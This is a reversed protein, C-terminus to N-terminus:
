SNYLDFRTEYHPDSNKNSTYAYNFESAISYESFESSPCLLSDSGMIQSGMDQVKPKHELM